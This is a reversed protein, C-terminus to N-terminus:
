IKPLMAQKKRNKMKVFYWIEPFNTTWIRIETEEFIICMERKRAGRITWGYIKEFINSFMHSFNLAM